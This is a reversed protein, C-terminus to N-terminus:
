MNQYHKAGVCLRLSCCVWLKKNLLRCIQLSCVTKQPLDLFVCFTFSFTYFTSVPFVTRRDPASSRRYHFSNQIIQFQRFLFVIMDSTALTHDHKTLFKGPVQSLLCSGSFWNLILPMHASSSEECGPWESADGMMREDRWKEYQM